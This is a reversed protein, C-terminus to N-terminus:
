LVHLAISLAHPKTDFAKLRHCLKWPNNINYCVVTANWKEKTYQTFTWCKSFRKKLQFVDSGNRNWHKYVISRPVNACRAKSPYMSENRKLRYRSILYNSWTTVILVISDLLQGIPSCQKIVGDTGDDLTKLTQVDLANSILHTTNVNHRQDIERM